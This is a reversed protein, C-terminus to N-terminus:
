PHGVAGPLRLPPATLLFSSRHQLMLWTAPDRPFWLEGTDMGQKFLCNEHLPLRTFRGQGPGGPSPFDVAEVGTNYCSSTVIEQDTIWNLLRQDKGNLVAGHNHLISDGPKKDMKLRAEDFGTYVVLFLVNRAANNQCAM